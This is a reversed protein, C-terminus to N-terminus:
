QQAAALDAAAQEAAQRVRADPDNRLFQVTAVVPLPSAVMHAVARVCAARVLPAPDERAATLLGAVIAPEARWNRALLGDVAWERQSPYLSDRLIALLQPVSAGETVYGVSVTQAAAMPSGAAPLSRAAQAPMGPQAPPRAQAAMAAQAAMQAQALMQAQAMMQAQFALEEEGGGGFANPYDRPAGFDAPIPRSSGGPTFANAMGSQMGVDPSPMM